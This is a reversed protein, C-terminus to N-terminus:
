VVPARDLDSFPYAGANKLREVYQGGRKREDDTVDQNFFNEPLEKHFEDLFDRQDTM